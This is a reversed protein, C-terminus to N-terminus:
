TGCGPWTVEVDQYFTGRGPCGVSVVARGKIECTPSKVAVQSSVAPAPFGNTANHQETNAIWGSSANPRTASESYVSAWRPDDAKPAFPSKHVEVTTVVGASYTDQHFEFTASGIYNGCITPFDITRTPPPSAEAWLPLAFAALGALLTLRNASIM